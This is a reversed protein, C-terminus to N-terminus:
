GGFVEGKRGVVGGDVSYYVGAVVVAVVIRVSVFMSMVIGKMIM